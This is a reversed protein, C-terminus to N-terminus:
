NERTFVLEIPQGTVVMRDGEVTAALDTMGAGSFSVQYKGDLNKWEGQLTQLDGSSVAVANIVKPVNKLFAEHGAGAVFSAKGLNNVMLKKLKQMEISGLNPKARRVLNLAYNVDFHWRGLIKEADYKASTGQGLYAHLDELDPSLTAWISHVLDPNKLIAQVKPYNIVDMISKKQYRL